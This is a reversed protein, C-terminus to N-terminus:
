PDSADVAASPCDLESAISRLRGPDRGALLVVAGDNVLRKALCSGVAGTAGFVLFVSM